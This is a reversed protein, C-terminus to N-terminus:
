FLMEFDRVGWVRTDWVQLFLYELPLGIRNPNNKKMCFADQNLNVKLNNEKLTSFGLTNM